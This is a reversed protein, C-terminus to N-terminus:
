RLTQRNPELRYFASRKGDFAFYRLELDPATHVVQRWSRCGYKAPLQEPYRVTIWEGAEAVPAWGDVALSQFAERLASVIGAAFWNVTSNSSNANIVFDKVAQSRIAEAMAQRLNQMDEAWKQLQALHQDIRSYAKNLAEQAGRCGDSSGIDHQEIFHHVLNNRLDVLERLEREFRAFDIDALHVKMQLAFGNFTESSVTKRDEPPGIKDAVFYSGFLEGVLTGLTKRATSDIRAALAQELDYSPVSLKHHAVMAKM